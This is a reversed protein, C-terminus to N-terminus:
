RALLAAVKEAAQEDSQPLLHAYTALVVNPHDGLSAAVIHVPVRQPHDVDHRRLLLRVDVDPQQDDLRRPRGSKL